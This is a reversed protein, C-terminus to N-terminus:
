SASPRLRTTTTWREAETGSAAFRVAELGLANAESAVHEVLQRTGTPDAVSLGEDLAYDAILLAVLTKGDGTPM